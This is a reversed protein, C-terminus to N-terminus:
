KSRETSEVYQIIQQDIQKSNMEVEVPLVYLAGWEEQKWIQALRTADKRTTIVANEVGHHDFIEQIESERFPHHDRFAKHEIIRM